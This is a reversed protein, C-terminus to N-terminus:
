VWIEQATSVSRWSQKNLDFFPVIKPSHGNGKPHHKTPINDLATTGLASRLSGDKKKFFFRVVGQNLRTSLVQPSIQNLTSPM